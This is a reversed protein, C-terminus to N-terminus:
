EYFSYQYELGSVIGKKGFIKIVFMDLTLDYSQLYM